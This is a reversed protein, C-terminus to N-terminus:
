GLTNLFAWKLRASMSGRDNSIKSILILLLPSLFGNIVATMFPAKLPNIGFDTLGGLLTTVAIL